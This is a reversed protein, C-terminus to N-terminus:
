DNTTGTKKAQELAAKAGAVTLKQFNYNDDSIIFGQKRRFSVPSMAYNELVHHIMLINKRTTGCLVHKLQELKGSLGSLPTINEKQLLAMIFEMYYLDLHQYVSLLLKPDQALSYSTNLLHDARQLHANM